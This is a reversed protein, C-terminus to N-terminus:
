KEFIKCCFENMKFFPDLMLTMLYFAGIPHVLSEIHTVVNLYNMDAASSKSNLKM